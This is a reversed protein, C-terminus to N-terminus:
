GEAIDFARHDAILSDAAALAREVQEDGVPGGMLQRSFPKLRRLGDAQREIGIEVAFALIADALELEGNVVAPAHGGGARGQARRHLAWSEADAGARAHGSPGRVSVAPGANGAGATASVFGDGGPAFHAHAASRDV